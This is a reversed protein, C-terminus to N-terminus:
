SSSGRRYRVFSKLQLHPEVLAVALRWRSPADHRGDWRYAVGDDAEAVNGLDRDQGCERMRSTVRPEDSDHAIISRFSTINRLAVAEIAHKGVFLEVLAQVLDVCDVDRKGIRHVGVVGDSRPFRADV